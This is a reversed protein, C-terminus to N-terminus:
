LILSRNLATLLHGFWYRSVVQFSHGSPFAKGIRRRRFVTACVKGSSDNRLERQLAEIARDSWFTEESMPINGNVDVVFAFKM